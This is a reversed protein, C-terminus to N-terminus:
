CFQKGWHRLNQATRQHLSIHGASIWSAPAGLALPMPRDPILGNSQASPPRGAADNGLLLHSFDAVPDLVVVLQLVVDFLDGLDVALQQPAFAGVLAFSLSLSLSHGVRIRVSWTAARDQM